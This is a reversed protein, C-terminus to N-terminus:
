NLYGIRRWGDAGRRVEFTPWFRYEPEVAVIARRGDMAVTSLRVPTGEPVSGVAGLFDDLNRVPVGDVATVFRNRWLADRLAPSGQETHAVYVGPSLAGKHWAIDPHPAQFLAGAWVVARDTGDAGIASPFLELEVVEGDRLVTLAVRPRQALREAALLGSVLEGDIALLVDGAALKAAADTGPVTREVYLARRDGADLELYRRLWEDPLGLERALALPRYGLHADLSRYPAGDRYQRLTEALVEAPLAYAGQEIRRDREHAFTAWLGHVTGDADVLPGGLSPPAGEVSWLDAPAQQFRPLGPPPFDVALRAVQSTRQVRLTGDDRYGVMLPVAPMPDEPGALELAELAAGGLAAPDYRLLALNHRPHVHVVEAEVVTAGFFTVEVDGLAVPVTNRDVAVLGEDADLVLGVGTFHRAYVNDTAFPVHFDVEVIGPAVRDLTPDRYSPVIARPVPAAARAFAADLAAGAEPPRDLEIPACRWFREGDVRECERHEFWREDVELRAAVESRERGPVVFRLTAKAGAPVSGLADLFDDLGAVARGAVARVVAGAPVGARTFFYGAEAVVVGSAPLNMARAHQISMEQLVADGLEVLRDPALAHLDAVTAALELTEGGRVVELAVRRGVRADLLAELEVFGTVVRGAVALCTVTALDTVCASPLLRSM